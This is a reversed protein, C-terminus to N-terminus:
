FSPWVKEFDQKLQSFEWERATPKLIVTAQFYPPLPSTKLGQFVLETLQRKLRHRDVSLRAVKKPVVIAAQPQHTAQKANVRWYVVMGKGHAVKLPSTFFDPVARLPLRHIKPLM